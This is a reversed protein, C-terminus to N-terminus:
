IHKKWENWNAAPIRSQNAKHVLYLHLPRKQLISLSQEPNITTANIELHINNSDLVFMSTPETKYFLSLKM